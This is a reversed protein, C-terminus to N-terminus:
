RQSTDFTANRLFGTPVQLASAGGLQRHAQMLADLRADRLVTGQSTSVLVAQPNDPTTRAAVVALPAVAPAAAVVVDAGSPADSLRWALTLVTSLTALAAVAKWRFVPDNAAAGQMPVPEHGQGMGSPFANIPVPVDPRVPTESSKIRQMVGQAFALTVPTAIVRPAETRGTSRLVDGIVQYRHWAQLLEGGDSCEALLVDLESPALEDDLLASVAHMVVTSSASQSM